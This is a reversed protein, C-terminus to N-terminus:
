GTLILYIGYGRRGFIAALPELLVFIYIKSNSSFVSPKAACKRSPKFDSRHFFDHFLPIYVENEPDLLSHPLSIYLVELGPCSKLLVQINGPTYSPLMTPPAADYLWLRKLIPATRAITPALRLPQIGSISLDRLQCMKRDNLFKDVAQLWTYADDEWEWENQRSYPAMHFLALRRIRLIDVPAIEQIM